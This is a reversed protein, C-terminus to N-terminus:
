VGMGWLEDPQFLDSWELPEPEVYVYVKGRSGILSTAKIEIDVEGRGLGNRALMGDISKERFDPDIKDKPHHAFIVRRRPELLLNLDPAPSFRDSRCARRQMLVVGLEVPSGHMVVDVASRM